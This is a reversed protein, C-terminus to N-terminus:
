SAVSLVVQPEMAKKINALREGLHRSAERHTDREAELRKLQEELEMVRYQASDRERKATDHETSISIYATQWHDVDRQTSALRDATVVHAQREDELDKHIMGNERQLDVREQRLRSVEEDLRANTDRYVTVEDRLQAFEAKLEELEKALTSALVVKDAIGQFFRSVANADDPNFMTTDKQTIPIITKPPYPTFQGTRKSRWAPPTATYDWYGEENLANDLAKDLPTVHASSEVDAHHEPGFLADGQTMQGFEDM